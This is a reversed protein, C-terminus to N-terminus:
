SIKLQWSRSSELGKLRLKLSSEAPSEYVAQVGALACVTHFARAVRGSWCALGGASPLLADAYFSASVSAEHPCSRAWRHFQGTGRESENSRVDQENSRVHQEILVPAMGQPHKRVQEEQGTRQEVQEGMSAMAAVV